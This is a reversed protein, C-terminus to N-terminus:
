EYGWEKMVDWAESYGEWNDVGCGELADLLAIRKDDYNALAWEVSYLEEETLKGKMEEQILDRVQKTIM